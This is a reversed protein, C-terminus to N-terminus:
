QVFGQAVRDIAEVYDSHPYAIGARRFPEVAMDIADRVAQMLFREMDADDANVIEQPVAIQIALMREKKSLRGTRIGTFDPTFVSGPVHFVIDLSGFEGESGKGRLRVLKSLARDIRAGRVEPGGYVRGIYIV